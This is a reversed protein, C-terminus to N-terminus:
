KPLSTANDDWSAFMAEPTDYTTLNRNNAVDDLAQVTVANFRRVIHPTFPLGQCAVVQRAFIGIAV